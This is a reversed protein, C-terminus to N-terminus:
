KGKRSQPLSLEIGYIPQPGERLSTTIEKARKRLVERTAEHTPFGAEGELRPFHNGTALFAMYSSQEISKKNKLTLTKKWTVHYDHLVAVDRVHELFEKTESRILFTGGPSLVRKALALVQPFIKVALEPQVDVFYPCNMSLKDVKIKRTICNRLAKQWTGTFVRIGNKRLYLAHPSLRRSQLPGEERYRTDNAGYERLPNKQKLGLVYRGDGSGLDLGHLRRSKPSRSNKRNAPM